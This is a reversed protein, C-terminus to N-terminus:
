FIDRLWELPLFLQYLLSRERGSWPLGALDYWGIAVLTVYAIIYLAIAYLLVTSVTFQRM